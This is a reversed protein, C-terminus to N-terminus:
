RGGAQGRCLHGPAGHWGVQYDWQPGVPIVMRGGPRLKAVLVEPLSAAAAPATLARPWSSFAPLCVDAHLQCTHQNAQTGGHGMAVQVSMCRM